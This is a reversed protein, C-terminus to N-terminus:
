HTKVQHSNSQLNKSESTSSEDLWKVVSKTVVNDDSFFNEGDFIVVSKYDDIIVFYEAKREPLRESAKIWRM